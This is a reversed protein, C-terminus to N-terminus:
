DRLVGAGVSRHQRHELSGDGCGGAGADGRTFREQANGDHRGRHYGQECAVGSFGMLSTGSCAM